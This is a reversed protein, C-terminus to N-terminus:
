SSGEKPCCHEWGHTASVVLRQSRRDFHAWAEDHDANRTNYEIEQTEVPSGESDLRIVTVHGSPSSSGGAAVEWWRVLAFSDHGSSDKLYDVHQLDIEVSGEYDGQKDKFTHAYKGRVLRPWCRATRHECLVPEIATNAFDVQKISTYRPGPIRESMVHNVIGDDPDSAFGALATLIVVGAIAVAKM